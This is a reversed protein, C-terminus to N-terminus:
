RFFANSVPLDGNAEVFIRTPQARQRRPPSVPPTELSRNMPSSTPSILVYPSMILSIPSLAHISQPSPSQHTSSSERRPSPTRPKEQEQQVKRRKSVNSPDLIERRKVDRKPRSEARAHIAEVDEGDGSGGAVADGVDGVVGDIVTEIACKVCRYNSCFEKWTPSGGKPFSVFFYFVNDNLKVVLFMVLVLMCSSFKYLYIFGFFFKGGCCTRHIAIKCVLCFCVQKRGVDFGCQSFLSASLNAM